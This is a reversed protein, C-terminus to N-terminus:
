KMPRKGIEELKTNLAERKRASEAPQVFYFDFLRGLIDVLWEAEERTVDIIEGDIHSESPHAAYNGINRIADIDARIYSPLNNQQLLEQIESDLTGKKIAAKRRILKQLCYRSLAASARPSADLTEVAERYDDRFDEDVEPPAEILPNYPKPSMWLEKWDTTHSNTEDKTVAPEVLWLKHPTNTAGSRGCGSMCILWGSVTNLSQDCATPQFDMASSERCLPCCVFVTKPIRYNKWETQERIADPNVFHLVAFM